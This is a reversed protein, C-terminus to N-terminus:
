ASARVLDLNVYISRSELSKLRIKDYVVEGMFDFSSSHLLLLVSCIICVFIVCAFSSTWLSLDIEEGIRKELQEVFEKTTRVLVEECNKLATSNLARDWLRRRRKHEAPDRQSVLSNVNKPFRNYWGPISYPNFSAPTFLL